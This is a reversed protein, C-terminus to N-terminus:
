PTSTATPDPPTTGTTETSGPATTETSGPATTSTASPDLSIPPISSAPAPQGPGLVELRDPPPQPIETGEEAFAITVIWGDQPAFAAFDSELLRGTTDSIGEWVKVQVTGTSEGCEDGNSVDIGPGSISSDTLEFGNGTAFAGLNAGAGTVATSSPEVHIIGDGHTNMGKGDAEPAPPLLTGCNYFAYPVHWHDGIIPGASAERNGRSVVILTVGVVVVATILAPWALNRGTGPRGAARAARAVKKSSSAKGM